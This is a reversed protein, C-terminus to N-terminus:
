DAALLAPLRAAFDDPYAAGLGPLVEVMVSHGQTQYRDLVALTSEAYPDDAGVIIRIDVPPSPLAPAGAARSTPAFVSSGAPVTWCAPHSSM